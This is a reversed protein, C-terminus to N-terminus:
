IECKELMTSLKPRKIEKLLTVILCIAKDQSGNTDIIEKFLHFPETMKALRGKGYEDECLFKLGDLDDKTLSQSIELLTRRVQHQVNKETM